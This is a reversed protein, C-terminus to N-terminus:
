VSNRAAAPRLVGARSSLMNLVLGTLILATAALKWWPMPEDLLLSSAAMGFVPVLLAWPTVTAATYRSLLYNWLGYGILTNGITQWLVVLWAQSSAHSISQLVTELGEVYLAIVMLPPVAFLSSWVVFALFDVNGAKKAVLNGCAWSLGAALTVAIGILSTQGGAQDNTSIIILLLGAFCIALSVLQVPTVAEKLTVATLFVTFFVQMQIILSALGPSINSQMAWFLLGFQGVGIFLGYSILYWWPVRPRSVFFVLPLAVLAFRLAAFAYAPLEDLGVRIFVFNTGWIFVVLLAM